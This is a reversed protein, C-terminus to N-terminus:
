DETLSHHHEAAGLERRAKDIMARIPRWAEERRAVETYIQQQIANTAHDMEIHDFLHTGDPIMSDRQQMLLLARRSLMEHKIAMDERGITALVGRNYEPTGQAMRVIAQNLTETNM